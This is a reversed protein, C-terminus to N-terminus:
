YGNVPFAPQSAPVGAGTNADRARSAAPQKARAKKKTSQEVHKSSKNTDQAFIQTPGAGSIAMAVALSLAVQMAKRYVRM